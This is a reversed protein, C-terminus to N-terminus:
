PRRQEAEQMVRIIQAYRSDATVSTARIVLPVASNVAGSLVHSGPGKSITFPEGTLYSEDMAGHGAIVDGDVPCVEHPLVSLEDGIQVDDVAVDQLAGDVRKHAILPVRGALARLVSTARAVAYHELTEGGSLMLVVITAALYQEMLTAAVISIGALQDSGFEGRIAKWALRAVLVSGGAALPILLPADQLQTSAGSARLALHVGIAVTAVIAVLADRLTGSRMSRSVPIRYRGTGTLADT